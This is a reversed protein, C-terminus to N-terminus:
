ALKAVVVINRVIPKVGGMLTHAKPTIMPIMAQKMMPIQRAPYYPGFPTEVDCVTFTEM